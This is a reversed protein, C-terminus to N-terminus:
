WPKAKYWQRAPAPADTPPPAPAAPAAPADATYVTTTWEGEADVSVAAPNQAPQAPAPLREAAERATAPPVAPAPTTAPADAAAMGGAEAAPVRRPAPDAATSTYTVTEGYELVPAPQRHCAAALVVVAM